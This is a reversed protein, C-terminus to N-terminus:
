HPPSRPMTASTCRFDLGPILQRTPRRWLVCFTPSLCLSYPHPKGEGLAVALTAGAFDIRVTISCGPIQTQAERETQPDAQAEDHEKCSDSHENAQDPKDDIEQSACSM